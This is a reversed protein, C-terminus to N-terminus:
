KIRKQALLGCIYFIAAGILAGFADAYIDEVDKARGLFSLLGQLEEVMWGFVCGLILIIILKQIIISPNALLWFFTFGGFL